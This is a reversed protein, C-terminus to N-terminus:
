RHLAYTTLLHMICTCLLGGMTAGDGLTSYGKRSQRPRTPMEVSVGQATVAAARRCSTDLAM